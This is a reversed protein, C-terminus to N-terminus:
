IKKVVSKAKVNNDTYKEINIKNKIINFAENTQELSINQTLLPAIDFINEKYPRIISKIQEIKEISNTEYLLEGSYKAYIKEAKFVETSIFHIFRSLQTDIINSSTNYQAKLIEKRINWKYSYCVGDEEEILNDLNSKIISKDKLEKPFKEIIAVMQERLNTQPYEKYLNEIKSLVEENPSLFSLLNLYSTITRQYHEGKLCLDNIFHPNIKEPAKKLYFHYLALDCHFELIPFIDVKQKLLANFFRKKNSNDLQVLYKDYIDIDKLINIKKDLNDILEDYEEKSMKIAHLNIHKLYNFKSTNPYKKSYDIALFPLQSSKVLIKIENKNLYM